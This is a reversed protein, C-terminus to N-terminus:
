LFKYSGWNANMNIGNNDQTIPEFIVEYNHLLFPIDNVYFIKQQFQINDECRCNLKIFEEAEERSGFIIGKLSLGELILEDFKTSLNQIVEKTIQEQIDM